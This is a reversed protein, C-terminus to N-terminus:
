PRAPGGSRGAPTLVFAVVTHSFRLRGDERRVALGCHDTALSADFLRMIEASDAPSPGGHAMWEEVDYHMAGRPRAVVELGAAAFLREFESAPLARV